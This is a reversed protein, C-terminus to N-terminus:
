VTEKINTTHNLNHEIPINGKTSSFEKRITDKYKKVSTQATRSDYVLMVFRRYLKSLEEKNEASIEWLHPFCKERVWSFIGEFNLLSGQYTEDLEVPIGKTTRM